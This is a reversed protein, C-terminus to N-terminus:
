AMNNHIVGNPKVDILTHPRTDPRDSAKREASELEPKIPRLKFCSVFLAVYKYM